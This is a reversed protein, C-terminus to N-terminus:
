ITILKRLIMTVSQWFLECLHAKKPTKMSWTFTNVWRTMIEQLKKRCINNLNNFFRKGIAWNAKAAMQAIKQRKAIANLTSHLYENAM